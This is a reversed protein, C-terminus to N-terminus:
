KVFATQGYGILMPVGPRVLAPRHWAQAPAPVTLCVPLMALQRGIALGDNESVNDDYIGGAVSAPADFPLRYWVDLAQDNAPASALVLVVRSPQSLDVGAIQLAGTTQNSPFVQFQGAPDGAAVLSSGGRHQVPLVIAASGSARVPTENLVPGRDGASAPTLAPLFARYFHRALTVNGAQSPHIDDPALAADLGGVCAANVASAVYALQAGRIAEIGSALFKASALPGIAPVSCLLTRFPAGPFATAIGDLLTRLYGLYTAAPTLHYQSGSRADADNHGQCWIFAGFKGGATALLSQLRVYDIKGPLWYTSIDTGSHGCGVLAANVGCAGVVLRLFEAAFASRYSGSDSPVEWATSPTPLAAGDWSALASGYPSAVVGLSALTATDSNAATSWFDTALSQGAAAIVEGVGIGNSTSVITTDDGNARLEILMWAKNAPLVLTVTQTGASLSAAAQTWPLLIASGSQADRLRFELPAIPAFTTVTLPVAGVGLNFSGGGRTDRQFVRLAAPSIVSLVPM